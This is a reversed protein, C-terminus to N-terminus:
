CSIEIRTYNQLKLIQSTSPMYHTREADTCQCEINEIRQKLINHEGANVMCPVLQAGPLCVHYGERLM